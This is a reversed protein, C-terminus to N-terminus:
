ISFRVRKSKGKRKLFKRRTKKGGQQIVPASNIPNEFQNISKDVRNSVNLGDKNLQKLTM